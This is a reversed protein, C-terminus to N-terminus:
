SWNPLRHLLQGASAGYEGGPELYASLISSSLRYGQVDHL